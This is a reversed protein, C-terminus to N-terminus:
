DKSIRIVVCEVMTIQYLPSTLRVFYSNQSATTYFEYDVVGKYYKVFKEIKKVQNKSLHKYFRYHHSNIGEIHKNKLETKDEIASVIDLIKIYYEINEAKVFAM